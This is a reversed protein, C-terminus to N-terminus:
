LVEEFSESLLNLTDDIRPLPHSDDYFKSCDVCLPKEPVPNSAVPKIVGRESMKQLSKNSKNELEMQHMLRKQEIGFRREANNVKWFQFLFYYDYKIQVRESRFEM